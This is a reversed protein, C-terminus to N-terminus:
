ADIAKLIERLEREVYWAKGNKDLIRILAGLAKKMERKEREDQKVPASVSM